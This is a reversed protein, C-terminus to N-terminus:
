FFDVNLKIENVLNQLDEDTKYKLSIKLTGIQRNVLMMKIMAGREIDVLKLRKVNIFTFPILSCKELSLQILSKMEYAITLAVDFSIDFSLLNLIEAHKMSRLLACTTEDHISNVRSISLNGIGFNADYSKVQEYSCSWLGLRRLEKFNALHNIIMSTIRMNEFNLEKLTTMQKTLFEMLKADEDLEAYLVKLRFEINDIFKDVNLMKRAANGAVCLSLLTPQSSLFHAIIELEKDSTGCNSMFLFESLKSEQLMPLINIATNSDRIMIHLKRLSPLLILNKRSEETLLTVNFLQLVKIHQSVPDILHVLDTLRIACSTIKVNEINEQQVQLFKKLQANVESNGDFVLNKYKRQSRLLASDDSNLGKILLNFKKMLRSSRGIVEEFTKCVRIVDLLQRGSLEDLIIEWLEPLLEIALM